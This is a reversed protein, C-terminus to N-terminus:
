LISFSILYGLIAILLLIVGTIKWILAPGKAKRPTGFEEATFKDYDFDEGPLDLGDTSSGEENWGSKDCAGCHPCAKAKAPVAEGCAPCPFTRPAAMPPYRLYLGPTIPRCHTIEAFSM